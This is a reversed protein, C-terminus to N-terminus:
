NIEEGNEFITEEKITGDENFVIFKGHKEGDKYSSEQYPQGSEYYQVHVGEAKGNKYLSTLKLQGEKHYHYSKGHRLGNKYNFEVMISDDDRYMVAIGSFPKSKNIEYVLGDKYEIDDNFSLKITEKSCSILLVFMCSLLLVIKLKKNM